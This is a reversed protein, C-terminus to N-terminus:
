SHRQVPLAIADQYIVDLGDIPSTVVHQRTVPALTNRHFLSQLVLTLLDVGLHM